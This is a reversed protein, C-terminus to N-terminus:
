ATAPPKLPRARGVEPSDSMIDDFAVPSAEKLVGGPADATGILAIVGRASGYYNSQAHDEEDICRRVLSRSLRPMRLMDLAQEWLGDLLNPDAPFELLGALLLLLGARQGGRTDLPADALYGLDVARWYADAAVLLRKLEQASHALTAHFM